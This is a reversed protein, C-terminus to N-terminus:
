RADAAKKGASLDFGDFDIGISFFPRAVLEEHTIQDQTLNESVFTMGRYRGLQEPEWTASYGLTLTVHDGILLSYGAMFLLPTKSDNLGFGAMFSHAFNRERQAEPILFFGVGAGPRVDLGRDERVLRYRDETTGDENILPDPQSFWEEGENHVLALVPMTLWVAGPGTSIAIEWDRDSPALRQVKVTTAFKRRVRVTVPAPQGAHVVTTTLAEIAREVDKLCGGATSLANRNETAVGFEDTAALVKGAYAAVVADCNAIRTNNNAFNQIGAPPAPVQPAAVPTYTSESSVVYSAGPMVNHLVIDYQGADREWTVVETHSLLGLPIPLEAGL